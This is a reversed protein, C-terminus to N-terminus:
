VLIVATSMVPVSKVANIRCLMCKLVSICTTEDLNKFYVGKISLIFHLTKEKFCRFCEYSFCSDLGIISKQNGLIGRAIEFSWLYSKFKM